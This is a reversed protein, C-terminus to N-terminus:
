KADKSESKIGEAWATVQSIHHEYHELVHQILWRPIEGNELLKDEPVRRVAESLASHTVRLEYLVRKLPQMRVREVAEANWRNEDAYSAWDFSDGHFLAELARLALADWFALHAALEKLSWKGPALPQEMVEPHLGRTPALLREFAIEFATLFEERTM